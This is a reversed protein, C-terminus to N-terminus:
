EQKIITVHRNIGRLGAQRYILFSNLLLQRKLIHQIQNKYHHTSKYRALYENGSKNHLKIVKGTKENANLARTLGKSCLEAEQVVIM